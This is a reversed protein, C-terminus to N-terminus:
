FEQLLAASTLSKQSAFIKYNYSGEEWVNQASGVRLLLDRFVSGYEGALMATCRSINITVVQYYSSFVKEKRQSKFKHYIFKIIWDCANFQLSQLTRSPELIAIEADRNM